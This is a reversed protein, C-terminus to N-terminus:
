VLSLISLVIAITKALPSKSFSLFRAAVVFMLLWVGALVFGSEERGNRLSPVFFMLYLWGFFCLPSSFLGLLTIRLGYRPMVQFQKRRAQYANAPRLGKAQKM